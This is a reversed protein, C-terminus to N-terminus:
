LDEKEESPKKKKKTKKSSKTKKKKKPRLADLSAFKKEVKLKVGMAFSVRQAETLDEPRPVQAPSLRTDLRQQMSPRRSRSTAHPVSVGETFSKDASMALPTHGDHDALNPDAGHELLLAVIEDVGHPNVAYHLASRGAADVAGVEAGHQLLARVAPERLKASAASMLATAGEVAAEEGGEESDEAAWTAAWEPDPAVARTDVDMGPGATHNVLLGIAQPVKGQPRQSRAALHLSSFGHPGHTTVDVGGKHLAALAYPDARFAATEAPKMEHAAGGTSGDAGHELLRAIAKTNSALVATMLANGPPLEGAKVLASEDDTEAQLDPAPEADLLSTLADDDATLIAAKLRDTVSADDPLDIGPSVPRQRPAKGASPILLALVLPPLVM